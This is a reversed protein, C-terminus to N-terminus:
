ERSYRYRMGQPAAEPTGCDPILAVQSPRHGCRTCRLRAGIGIIDYTMGREAAIRELDLYVSLLCRPNLCHAYVRCRDEMLQGVTGYPYRSPM